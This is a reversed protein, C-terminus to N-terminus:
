ASRFITDRHLPYCYFSDPIASNQSSKCLNMLSCYTRCPPSPNIFLPARPCEQYIPFAYHTIFFFSLRTENKIGIIIASTIEHAKFVITIPVHLTGEPEIFLLVIISPSLSSNGLPLFATM